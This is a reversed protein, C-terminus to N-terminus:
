RAAPPGDTGSPDPDDPARCCYELWLAGAVLVLSSGLGVGAAAADGGAATLLGARPLTYALLGAWIGAMVAGARASAQAVLVARATALPDVPGAGPVRRIRRRLGWGAVAEAAGLVAFTAGALLPLDPLSGYVVAAVLNGLLAAIVAAVVLDRARTPSVSGSGRGPPTM